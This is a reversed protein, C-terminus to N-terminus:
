DVLHLNGHLPQRGSHRDDLIDLRLFVLLREGLALQRKAGHTDGCRWLERGRNSGQDRAAESMSGVIQLVQIMSDRYSPDGTTLGFARRSHFSRAPPGSEEVIRLVLSLV